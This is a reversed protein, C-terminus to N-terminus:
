ALAEQITQRPFCTLATERSANIVTIGLAALPELLTDYMPRFTELPPRAFHDPHRGFFHELGTADFGLLVIRAAGLHVALNISQYGSHRGTRLASPDLELGTEGTYRLVQAWKAAQPDLTYRLGQYWDLKDGYRHWWRSMDAGCSYLVDAWPAVQIAHKIAIVKARGRCADVDEQCLSPGTAVCVITSGPWVKEVVTMPPAAVM